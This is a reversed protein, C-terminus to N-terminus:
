AQVKEGEILPHMGARALAAEAEALPLYKCRRLRLYFRYVGAPVPKRKEWHTLAAWYGRALGEMVVPLARPSRLGALLWRLTEYAWLLPVLTWPAHFWVNLISNRYIWVNKARQHRGAPHPFHEVTACRSVRVVYGNAYLKTCYNEEEGWQFLFDEYGGFRLFLDRRLAHAAGIYANTVFTDAGRPPPPGGMPSRTGGIVNVIPIAVAGVRPDAMEALVTALTTPEVFIADDDLSFVVSGHAIKVGRNRQAILGLRTESRVLVVEPYRARVLESTGDTSADDIVIIEAAITQKLVSEIARCVLQKRNRTTILVTAPVLPPEGLSASVNQLASGMTSQEVMM